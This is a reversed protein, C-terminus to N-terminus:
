EPQSYEQYYFQEAPQETLIILLAITPSAPNTQATSATLNTSTHLSGSIVSRYLTFVPYVPFCVTRRHALLAYRKMRDFPQYAGTFPMRIIPKLLRHEDLVTSDAGMIIRVFSEPASEPCYVSLETNKLGPNRHGKIPERFGYM